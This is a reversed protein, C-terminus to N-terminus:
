HPNKVMERFVVQGTPGYAIIDVPEGNRQGRVFSIAELIDAFRQTGDIGEEKVTCKESEDTFIYFQRRV